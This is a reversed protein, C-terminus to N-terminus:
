NCQFVIDCIVIVRAWDIVRAIRTTSSRQRWVHAAPSTVSLAPLEVLQHGLFNVLRHSVKVVAGSLLVTDGIDSQWCEEASFM